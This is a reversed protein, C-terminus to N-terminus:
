ELKRLEARANGVLSADGDKWIGILVEYAQRSAPLDGKIALSRAMQLYALTYLPSTPDVGRHDLIKQFQAAAEVGKRARLYALGRVYLPLFGSRLGFEYPAVQELTEIARDPNNQKMELVATVTPILAHQIWTDNQFRSNLETTLRQADAASGSLALAVAGGSLADQSRSISLGEAACARAQAHMGFAAETIAQREAIWAAPGKFGGHEAGEIARRTLERSLQLRGQSAAVAAEDALVRYEELNGKAWSTQRAMGTADGEVFAIWYLGRHISFYDLKQALAQEYTAKAEDFHNLRLQASALNNYALAVQPNLRVAERGEAVAKELEGLEMYMVALNNHPSWERPYTKGWIEYTAIAKNVEGTVDQYYHATIYLREPESVRDRLEFAKQQYKVARELEGLNRHIAGLNVYASAFQPDLEIASEFYPV